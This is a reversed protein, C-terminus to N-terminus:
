LDFTGNQSGGDQWDDIEPNYNNAAGPGGPTITASAAAIGQELEVLLVELMPAKYALGVLRKEM